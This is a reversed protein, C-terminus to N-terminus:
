TVKGILALRLTDLALKACRVKIIAPHAAATPLKTLVGQPTVLAICFAGDSAGPGFPKPLPGTALGYEAGTKDRVAQAMAVVVELSSPGHQQIRQVPVGLSSALTQPTRIVHGGLYPANDPVEALWQAILGGTGWEVTALTSAHRSLLRVVVHQLEDDEEGFVLNDLCRRITSIVPEIARHCEEDNSGEASVRLTITAQSATIGVSPHQGRRVLDPLLEEIRSEGAGFCKIRRHRIVRGQPWLAAITPGVTENWMEFLEAPVGPLAFLHAPAARERPVSMWFGPATGHPNPVIHSGSPFFAQVENRKPMVQGRQRFREAIAALAEDSRVLARGTARAMAERTLDDATPGLGGTVVVVDVRSLASRLVHACHDLEDGVTTHIITRVGLEGLRQSIWQSNTDLCEGSALEDGISIVEAMKPEFNGRNFVGDDAPVM